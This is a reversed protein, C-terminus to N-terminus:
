VHARGIKASLDARGTEAALRRAVAAPSLRDEGELLMDLGIVSPQADAVAAVLRAIQARSWPWPGHRALSESDIDVVVLPPEAGRPAHRLVLDFAKERPLTRLGSFDFTWLAGFAALAALGVRTAASGPLRTAM